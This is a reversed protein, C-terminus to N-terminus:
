CHGGTEYGLSGKELIGGQHSAVLDGENAGTVDAAREGVQDPQFLEPVDDHKVHETAHGGALREVQHLGARDVPEVAHHGAAGIIGGNGAGVHHDDGGAERAHRAHAAIVQQGLVGAHDGADGLADLRM